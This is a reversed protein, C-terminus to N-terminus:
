IPLQVIFATGEDKKTDVKLEGGHAKVIDYSLSLGLGTGQGTPKTTFFPQFIKNKIEDPIGNGNDKVSIEIRDGLSKTYVTVTPQYHSDLDSLNSLGTLNRQREAVVYFANNILNLLVRGIDQPIINIKPLSADFETKFDANFSKDKARLGHYSLRLYEDCLSNIDTLEKQGNSIRSHQLMGKVISDARKGHQLIKEENIAIDNAIAKIDELNGSELEEKLEAILEMNVESFNNVFNLPNQIEHAIGATLEGLSAMKESQILQSQTAKLELLAEEANQRAAKIEILDKEATKLDEFRKYALDFVSAFRTLADVASASPNPVEGPLSFGIEGHTTRAMVFTLGGIHRIDDLTPANHDVIEFDGLTIMKYVYDVATEADMALVLSPEKTKEWDAVLKIDGHIHRPLTMVMGIKTGDGSTMAKDYREPLWRMHWFYHAEHGLTVFEKRMMVVIDLLESSEKMATVHSRIRELSLEIQAERAQAESKQLDLFRTYAQDFVRAFRKIVNVENEALINGEFDNISFTANKVPVMSVTYSTSEFIMRKIDEPLHMFESTYKILYKYFSDKEEKSYHGVFYDLQKELANNFDKAIKNDFYPLRYNTIVLGSENEGCVFANLDKSGDINIAIGVATAPIQLEKLKEFVISVIENLEDSKLMALSRSRVKELATEIRAEKAQAEAKQLDLFRTYTLDVVHSFRKLVEPLDGPLPETGVAELIGHQFLAQGAYVRILSYFSDKYEQSSDKFDTQSFILDGYSKIEDQGLSFERYPIKLELDRLVRNLIPHDVFYFRYNTLFGGDDMNGKGWVTFERSNGKRLFISCEYLTLGLKQLEEFIVTIINQLEDSNRLGMAHARVRELSAELQAERAQAEAKQLDLFRQYAMNFAGTMKIVITRTDESPPNMLDISLVGDSLRGVPNWQHILSGSEIANNFKIGMEPLIEKFEEVAKILKEKPFDLVFYDEHTTKWIEVWEGMVPYKKADYKISYSNPISMNGPSSLDWITVTDYEDVLYISVGTLGDVKLKYLQNLVEENVKHLDTTQYMAMSQARVREVAAEIQAERAQALALEIDIFRRYALAFVNHFRKFIALGEESLSKYTSLGLGGQGISYFYYHISNVEDLLPDPFQNYQKRWERFTNLELGEMSGSFTTHASKKMEQAMAYSTPHLNYDTDEIVGEKYAAFYQYNLYTGKQENIIATQVNRIDTVGLLELQDSIVKCVQVMDAPVNMALASSRVKELTTEIELERNKNELEVTRNKVAELLRVNEAKVADMSFAEGEMAKMDPYSGHQHLAIWGSDTKELLSSMRFPGYLTWEGEIKVYLDTFENVMMYAGYPIVEIERNRIEVSGLMQDMISNTYDIIEQKSNWIEEKTGGINRYDDRIFTAWTAIDGKLYTTWYTNLWNALEQKLAPTVKM